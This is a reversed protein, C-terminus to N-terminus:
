RTKSNYTAGIPLFGIEHGASSRVAGFSIMLDFSDKGEAEM